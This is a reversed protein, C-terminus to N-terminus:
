SNMDSTRHKLASWAKVYFRRGAWVMIFLTLALFLFALPRGAASMASSSMSVLMTAVGVAVSVAAKTRLEEFEHQQRAVQKEQEDLISEPGSPVEAGYGTERIAEVLDEVRAQEPRYVVTASNLLLNVSAQEVGPQRELTRQVFSQCAACTM